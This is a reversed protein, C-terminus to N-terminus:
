RQLDRVEDVRLHASSIKQSRPVWIYDCGLRVTLCRVGDMGDIETSVFSCTACRSSRFWRCKSRKVAEAGQGGDDRRAVALVMVTGVEQSDYDEPYLCKDFCQRM